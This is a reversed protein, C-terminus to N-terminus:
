KFDKVAKHLIHKKTAVPFLLSMPYYSTDCATIKVWGNKFTSMAKIVTETGDPVMGRPLVWNEYHTGRHEGLRVVVKDGVKFAM